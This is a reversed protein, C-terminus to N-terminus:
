NELMWGKSMRKGGNSTTITTQYEEIKHQHFEQKDEERTAFSKHIKQNLKIDIVGVSKQGDIQETMWQFVSYLSYM